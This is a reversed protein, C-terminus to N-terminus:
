ANLTNVKQMHDMVLSTTSISLLAFWINFLVFWPTTFSVIEFGQPFIVVLANVAGLVGTLAGVMWAYNFMKTAPFKKLWSTITAGTKDFIAEALTGISGISFCVISLGSLAAIGATGVGFALAAAPFIIGLAAAILFLTGLFLGPKSFINGTGYTATVRLTGWGAKFPSTWGARVHHSVRGEPEKYFAIPVESITAGYNRATVIMETAYLWGNELFPLELYLKKTMARMGCHIDSVKIGLLTSFVFTTGPSGFYQHHPPMAGKEISGKFRSGMVLDSGSKVQALFPEIDRFDYTCDADGVIVIEGNIHEKAQRYAVGLGPEEVSIVRAGLREAIERTRDTSCDMLIIEGSVGAKEFGINCWNIFQEVSVEENKSPVVVSVDFKKSMSEGKRLLENFHSGFVLENSLVFSTEGGLFEITEFLKM